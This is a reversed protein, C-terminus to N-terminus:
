FILVQIVQRTEITNCKQGHPMYSNSIIFGYKFYHALAESVM